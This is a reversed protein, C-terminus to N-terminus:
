NLSELHTNIVRFVGSYLDGIQPYAQVVQTMYDQFMSLASSKAARSQNDQGPHAQRYQEYGDYAALMGSLPEKFGSPVDGHNLMARLDALQNQADRVNAASGETKIAFTPHLAKFQKSWALWDARHRTAAADNGSAKAAALDAKYQDEVAYYTSAAASVRVGDLFEQPTKRQRLGEELQARYASMSFPDGNSQEPIFFAAVSKYKDIFGLNNNMWTLAAKTAPMVARSTTAQSASQTYVTLDPHLATWIASARAVDGDAANLIAKYEDRLGQAGSAAFAYDAKSADNENMPVGIVAPSVVGFVARLFLQSKTQTKLRGLFEEMESHSAGDKPVLGAAYLNYLSGIMASSTLSNRDDQWADTFKKLLAPELTAFVGRGQGQDGNLFRDVEDFLARHEPFRDALWRGSISVVPSTSYQFPNASGPVITSVRGTFDSVPFQALGDLGPINSMAHLLVEQAVGSAPFHFMWDGTSEDQYVLGSHVAAEGALQLRRAQAPNRWLTSGWRRLMMTTARSFAFFSRGVVDMQSKLNPDDVMRAIRNWAQHAAIQATTREAATETFGHERILGQKFDELEVKSKGYAGAFLPTTTHRQILREVLWQYGKGEVDVLADVLGKVGPNTPQAVIVPRLLHQPRNQKKINDLIWDADPAKGHTKIHDNIKTQLVGNRGTVLQRFDETIADAWQQKGLRSTRPSARQQSGSSDRFVKGFLSHQMLNKAAGSELADIVHQSGLEPNEIRAIIAHAVQPSKNVRM